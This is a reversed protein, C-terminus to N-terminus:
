SLRDSLGERPRSVRGGIRAAAMAGTLCEVNV